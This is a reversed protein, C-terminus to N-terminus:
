DKLAKVQKEIIEKRSVPKSNEELIKVTSPDFVVYNRTGKGAGRSGEDLYKIGPIGAQLL